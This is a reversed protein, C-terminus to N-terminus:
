SVSYACSSNSAVSSAMLSECEGKGRTSGSGRWWAWAWAWAWCRLGGAEARLSLSGASSAGPEARPASSFGISSRRHSCLASPPTPVPPPTSFWLSMSTSSNSRDLRVGLLPSSPSPPSAGSPLSGRMCMGKMWQDSSCRSNRLTLSMMSASSGTGTVNTFQSTRLLGMIYWHPRRQVGSCCRSRTVCQPSIVAGEEAALLETELRLMLEAESAWWGSVAVERARRSLWSKSCLCALVVVVEAAM